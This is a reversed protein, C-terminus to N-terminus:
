NYTVVESGFDKAVAKSSSVRNLPDIDTPASHSYPGISSVEIAFRHDVIPNKQLYTECDTQSSFTFKKYDGSATYGAIVDLEVGRGVIFPLFTSTLHSTIRSGDALKVGVIDRGASINYVRVEGTEYSDPFMVNGHIDKPNFTLGFVNFKWYKDHKDYACYGTAGPELIFLDKASQSADWNGHRVEVPITHKIEDNVSVYVDAKGAKTGTMTSTFVGASVETVPSFTVKELNTSFKVDPKSLTNYGEKVTLTLLIGKDDDARVKTKNSMAETVLTKRPLVVPTFFVRETSTSPLATYGPTSSLLTELIVVYKFRFGVDVDTATHLYPLAVHNGKTCIDFEGLLEERGDPSIRYKKCPFNRSRSADLQTKEDAGYNNDPDGGVLRDHHFSDGVRWEWVPANVSFLTEAGSETIRKVDYLDMTPRHGVSPQTTKASVAGTLPQPQAAKEEAKAVGSMLAMAVGLAVPVVGTALKMAARM